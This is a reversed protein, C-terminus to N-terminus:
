QDLHVILTNIIYITFYHCLYKNKLDRTQSSPQFLTKKFCETNNKFIFIGCNEKDKCFYPHRITFDSVRRSASVRALNRSGTLIKRSGRKELYWEGGRFILDFHEFSQLSVVVRRTKRSKSGLSDLSQIKSKFFLITYPVHLVWSKCHSM